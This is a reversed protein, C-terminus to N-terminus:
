ASKCLTHPKQLAFHRYFNAFFGEPSLWEQWLKRCEYQLDIFEKPSLSHHFDALKEAIYPLESRDVWVCYKQWDIAFDYPLVCDTDLFVPIRGCCLTEYFRFSFNGAGRSCFIYDSGLINQLYEQRVQQKFDINESAAKLYVQGSRQIFNTEVLPSNALIQLAQYRLTHGQYPPVGLKGTIGLMATQYLLTKLQAQLFPTQKAYGCFGVVPKKNKQRIPLEGGLHQEVFDENVAPAAFDSSKKRSRYLSERFVIANKIPIEEDSCDGAFFIATPKGAADAQRAFEMTLNKAIKDRKITRWTLGRVAIWNAPAIALDAEELSTMEFYSDGIQAYRSYRKTWSSEKSGLNKEVPTGWFPSLIGEHHVGEPLYRRDSYIKLKM